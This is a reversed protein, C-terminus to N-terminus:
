DEEVEKKDMLSLILGITGPILFVIILSYIGIDYLVDPYRIVWDIYLAIGIVIFIISLISYVNFNKINIKFRNKVM